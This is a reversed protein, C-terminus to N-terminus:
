MLTKLRKVYRSSKPVYSTGPKSIAVHFDLFDYIVRLIRHNQNQCDIDVPPPYIVFYTAARPGSITNTLNVFLIFHDYNLTISYVSQRLFYAGFVQLAYKKPRICGRAMQATSTFYNRKVDIRINYLYTAIILMISVFLLLLLLLLYCISPPM